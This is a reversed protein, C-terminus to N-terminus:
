ATRRLVAVAQRARSLDDIFDLLEFDPSWREVFQRRPVVAEGYLERDLASGPDSTAEFLFEGAEYRRVADAHDVFSGQLKRYWDSTAEEPHDRMSQCRDLFSRPQTTVFAIGGPAMVRALETRWQDHARPSLHSFVSYAVATTFAADPLDSPPSGPLRVLHGPVGTSRCMEIAEDLPDACWINAAPVDHLFLRAYRGWGCGFDLVRSDSTLELGHRAREQAMLSYFNWGEWIAVLNSNGVYTAQLHAPPFTPMPLRALGEVSDFVVTRWEEMSLSRYRAFRQAPTDAAMRGIARTRVSRRLGDRATRIRARIGVNSPDRGQTQDGAVWTSSM